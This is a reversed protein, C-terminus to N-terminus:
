CPKQGRFQEVSKNKWCALYHFFQHLSTLHCNLRIILPTLFCFTWSSIQYEVQTDGWIELLIITEKDSWPVKKRDEQVGVASEASICIYFFVSIRFVNNLQNQGWRNTVKSNSNNINWKVIETRFIGHHQASLNLFLLFLNLYVTCTMLIANFWEFKNNHFDM